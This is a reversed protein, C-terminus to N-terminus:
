RYVPLNSGMSLYREVSPPMLDFYRGTQSGYLCTHCNTLIQAVPWYKQLDNLFPKMGKEFDLYAFNNKIKGFGWEVAIRVSSMRKNFHAEEGTIFGSADFPASLWPSLPYAPDGYLQYTRGARRCARRMVSIVGSRDLMFADHHRGNIPGFPMPMIGNPLMVGQWKVLHARKHGNFLISQYIGPKDVYQNSGDIFGVCLKLPLPRRGAFRGQKGGRRITRAFESFYPAWAELSRGDRLHAFVEYVHSVTANFIRCSACACVTLATYKCRCQSPQQHHPQGASLM